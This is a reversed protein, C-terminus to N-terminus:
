DMLWIVKMIIVMLGVLNVKVMSNVKQFNVMIINTILEILNVMVMILILDGVEKIFLKVLTLNLYKVMLRKIKNTNVEIYQVMKLIIIVMVKNIIIKTIELTIIKLVLNLSVFVKVNVVGKKVLVKLMKIMKKKPLM